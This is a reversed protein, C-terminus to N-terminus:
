SGYHEEPGWTEDESADHADDRAPCTRFGHGEMECYDCYLEPMEAM